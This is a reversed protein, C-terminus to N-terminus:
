IRQVRVGKKARSGRIRGAGAGGGEYGPRSPVFGCMEKDFGALLRRGEHGAHHISDPQWEMIKLM